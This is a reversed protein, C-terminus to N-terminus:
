VRERCSARGIETVDQGSELYVRGDRIEAPPRPIPLGGACEPCVPHATVGPRSCLGIVGDVPKAGGDYRCPAGLLCNSVLIDM